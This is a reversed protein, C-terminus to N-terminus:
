HWNVPCTATIDLEKAKDLFKDFKNWFETCHGYDKCQTLTYLHIVIYLLEDDNNYSINAYITKKNVVCSTDYTVEIPISSTDGVIQELKKRLKIILEQETDNNEM